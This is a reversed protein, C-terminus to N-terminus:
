AEWRDLISLQKVSDIVYKENAKFENFLIEQKENLAANYKSEILIGDNTIFDIEYGNEYLYNLEKINRLKLYIYNEFYSGYDRDGIFLHKIGLDCAYIKKASLLTENTKGYRPLLHILYADEFYTLYRRATDVSINLIKGIKNISLQKGSREMLLLFYDRVIQHNRIGYFATIDKQIIDDVLNMLYERSPNLVNEPMGGDRIYDKFYTDLLYEESKKIAINKFQLYEKFDLPKIEYTIARGTLYAKKDKLLSSSSSTAYIKVNQKDYINKLQQQYDDKYTIEDFFIFIKESLSLRHIRRYEVLIEDLLKDRLVYDDLSIYLIQKSEVKNEILYSILLKMLSTKGVRRLGSLFIISRKDISTILKKFYNTRQVLEDAKFDTEWWPNYQHLLEEM